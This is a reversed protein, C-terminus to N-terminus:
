QILGMTLSISKVVEIYSFHKMAVEFGKKGIAIGLEKNELVWTLQKAFSECNDPVAFVASEKDSLFLDFDGVRSVVVPNKSLLYEGMKTAFGYKAQVNNPRDLALIDADILKQPMDKAAIMGTLVIRKELQLDKILKLNGAEDNKPVPGLIFLKVDEYKSAVIAFSKILQDVGDKNNSATGCYVIRRDNHPQKNVKDFRSPDVTINAIHIKDPNVGKSVFYEKLATTIVFLGDLKPLSKFYNDWSPTLFKGGIGVVEPNETHELFVKVKPKIKKIWYWINASSYILIIDGPKLNILFLIYYLLLSFYKLSGINLFYHQWYHKIVVHDHNESYCHMKEDPCFDIVTTEIGLESFGKIYSIARNTAATNPIYTTPIFYFNHM